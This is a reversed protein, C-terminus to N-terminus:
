GRIRGRRRLRDAQVHEFIYLTSCARTLPLAHVLTSVLICTHKALQHGLAGNANNAADVAGFDLRMNVHAAPRAASAQQGLPAISQSPFQQRPRPTLTVPPAQIPM